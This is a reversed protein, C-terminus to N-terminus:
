PLHARIERVVADVPRTADIGIGWEFKTTKAYVARAAERGHPPDRRNDRRICVALPAKLTFVFPRAELRDILDEIQTKWYFNGDFVVPTGNALSRRALPVAIENAGLFESLRGEKWLGHEDLIRDISVCTADIAKALVRSVTTKGVGLPGRLIVFYAV